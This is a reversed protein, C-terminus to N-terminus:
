SRKERVNTIEFSGERREGNYRIRRPQTSGRGGGREPVSRVALYVMVRGKQPNFVASWEFPTVKRNPDGTPPRGWDRGKTKIGSSNL